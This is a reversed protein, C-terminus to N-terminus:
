SERESGGLCSLFLISTISLSRPHESGGLCSLFGHALKGDITYPESGGLCSLFQLAPILIAPM